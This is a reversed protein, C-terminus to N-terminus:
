YQRVLHSLLLLWRQIGGKPMGDGLSDYSAVLLKQTLSKNYFTFKDLLFAAIKQDDEEFNKIWARPRM